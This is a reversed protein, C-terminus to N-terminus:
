LYPHLDWRSSPMEAESCPVEEVFAVHRATRRRACFLAPARKAQVCGTVGERGVCEFGPSRDTPDGSMRVRLQRQAHTPRRFIESELDSESLSSKRKRGLRRNKLTNRGERQWRTRRKIKDRRTLVEHQRGFYVDAPPESAEQLLAIDADTDLLRRWADDRHCINWCLIKLV